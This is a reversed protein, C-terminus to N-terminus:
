GGLGTGDEASLPTAWTGPQNCSHLPEAQAPVAPLKHNAGDDGVLGAARLLSGRRGSSFGVPRTSLFMEQGKSDLNLFMVEGSKM